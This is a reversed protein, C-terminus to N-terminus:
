FSEDPSATSFHVDAFEVLIVLFRRAGISLRTSSSRRHPVSSRKIAPETSIRAPKSSSRLYGNAACEVVKGDLTTAYHWHEDGHLRISVVSGDPQRYKITGPYAATAHLASCALLIGTLICLLKKM